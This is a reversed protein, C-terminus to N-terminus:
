KITIKCENLNYIHLHEEEKNVDDIVKDTLNITEIVVGAIVVGSIAALFLLSSSKSQNTKQYKGLQNFIEPLDFDIEEFNKVCKKLNVNAFAFSEITDYPVTKQKDVTVKIYPVEYIYKDLRSKGNPSPIMGHFTYDKKRKNGIITDLRTSAKYTYIVLSINKEGISDVIWFNKRLADKCLCINKCNEYVNAEGKLTVGILEGEEIYNHKNGKQLIIKNQAVSTPCIISAAIIFFIIRM